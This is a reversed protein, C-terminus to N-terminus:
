CFSKVPAYSNMGLLDPHSGIHRRLVVVGGLRAVCCLEPFIYMCDLRRFIANLIL